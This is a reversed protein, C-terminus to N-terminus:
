FSLKLAVFNDKVPDFFHVVIEVLKRELLKRLKDLVGDDNHKEVM